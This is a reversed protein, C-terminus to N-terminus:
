GKGLILDVVWCGRVDPGPGRCHDLIDTNDCGADQLADALIPMAGFDRSEYMQCALTLVTSTLWASNVPVSRFPLPGFVDRVLSAYFARRRRQKGWLWFEFSMQPGERKLREELVLRSAEFGDAVTLFCVARPGGAMSARFAPPLTEALKQETAQGDAYQEAVEVARLSHHDTVSEPASRCCGCGLLRFKRDTAKGEMFRLMPTPDTAMLWEAETM